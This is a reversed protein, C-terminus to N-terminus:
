WRHYGFGGIYVGGGNYPGTYYPGYPGYYDPPPPPADYMVDGEGGERGTVAAVPIYGAHGDYTVHCWGKRCGLVNIDDAEPITRVARGGPTSRLKTEVATSAEYAWAASASTLLAVGALAAAFHFKM